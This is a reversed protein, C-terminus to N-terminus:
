MTVNDPKAERSEKQGRKVRNPKMFVGDIVFLSLLFYLSYLIYPIYPAVPHDLQVSM